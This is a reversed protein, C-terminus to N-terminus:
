ASLAELRLQESSSTRQEVSIGSGLIKTGSYESHSEANKINM